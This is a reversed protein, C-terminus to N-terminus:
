ITNPTAAHVAQDDDGNTDDGDTGLAFTTEASRVRLADGPNEPTPNVVHGDADYFVVTARQDVAAGPEVRDARVFADVVSREAIGDGDADERVRAQVWAPRAGGPEWPAGNEDYLTADAGFPEAAAAPVALVFLAVLAFTRM